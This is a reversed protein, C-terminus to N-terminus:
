VRLHRQSGTVLLSIADIARKTTVNVDVSPHLPLTAEPTRVFTIIKRTDMSGVLPTDDWSSGASYTQSTIKRIEELEVRQTSFAALTNVGIKPTMATIWDGVNTFWDVVFSYPVIEWAAAPLDLLGYRDLSSAVDNTSEYMVGSRSVCTEKRMTQLNLKTNGGNNVIETNTISTDTRVDFGRSTSRPRHRHLYDDSAKLHDIMDYVIPMWGYRYELWLQAAESPNRLYKAVNWKEPHESLRPIKLASRVASGPKGALFAELGNAIKASRDALLDVTKGMEAITVLSMASDKRRVGAHSKVIATNRSSTRDCLQFVPPGFGFGARAFFDSDEYIAVTGQKRLGTARANVVRSQEIWSMATNVIMGQSRMYRFAPTVWDAMQRTSGQALQSTYTTPGSTLVMGPYTYFSLVSSSPLLVGRSRQRLWPPKHQAM